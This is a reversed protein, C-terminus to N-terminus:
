SNSHCLNCVLSFSMGQTHHRSFPCVVFCFLMVTVWQGTYYYNWIAAKFTRIDIYSQILAVYPDAHIIIVVHVSNHLSIRRTHVLVKPLHSLSSIPWIPYNNQAYIPYPYRDQTVPVLWTAILNVQLGRSCCDFIGSTVTCYCVLDNSESCLLSPWCDHRRQMWPFTRQCGHDNTM